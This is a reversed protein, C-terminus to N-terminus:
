QKKVVFIKKGETRIVEIGTGAKIYGDESLVECRRGEIQADGVPSLATVTKGTLGVMDNLEEVPKATQSTNLIIKSRSLRGKAASKLSLVVAGFSFVLTVLLTILGATAGHARFMLLTGLGLLAVGALGPLGMGPTIAELTFLLVGAAMCVIIVADGKLLELM